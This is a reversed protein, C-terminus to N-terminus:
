CKLPQYAILVLVAKMLGINIDMNSKKSASPLRAIKTGNVGAV